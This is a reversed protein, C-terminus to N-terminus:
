RYKERNVNLMEVMTERAEEPSIIVAKGEYGFVARCVSLLDCVTFSVREHDAIDAASYSCELRGFDEAIRQKVDSHFELTVNYRTDNIFAGMSFRMLEDAPPADDSFHDDTMKVDKIRHLKYLRKEGRQNKAALYVSSDRYIWYFPVLLYSKEEGSEPVYKLIIKRKEHSAFYIRAITWLSRSPNERVWPAFCDHVGVTEIALPLYLDLVKLIETETLPRDLCISTSGKTIDLPFGSAKLWSLAPDVKKTSFDDGNSILALANALTTKNWKEGSSHQVLSLIHLARKIIVFQTDFSVDDPFSTSM